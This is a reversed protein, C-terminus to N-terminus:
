VAAYAGPAACAAAHRPHAPARAAGAPRAAGLRGARPGAAGPPLSGRSAPPPLVRVVGGTDASQLVDQRGGCCALGRM